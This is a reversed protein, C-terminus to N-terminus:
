KAKSIDIFSISSGNASIVTSLSPLYSIVGSGNEKLDIMSDSGTELNLIELFGGYTSTDVFGTIAVLGREPVFIPSSSFKLTAQRSRLKEFPRTSWEDIPGRQPISYLSNGKNFFKVGVVANGMQYPHATAVQELTPHGQNSNFKWIVVEGSATGIALHDTLLDYTIATAVGSAGSYKEPLVDRHKLDFIRLESGAAIIIFFNSESTEVVPGRASPITHLLEGSATDWVNTVTEFYSNTFFVQGDSSFRLKSARQKHAKIERRANAQRTDWIDVKGSERGVLLFENQPDFALDSITDSSGSNAVFNNFNQMFEPHIRSRINTSGPANPQAIKPAPEFNRKNVYPWVKSWVILVLAIVGVSFAAWTLVTWIKRLLSKM